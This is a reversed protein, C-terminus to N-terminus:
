RREVFGYWLICSTASIINTLGLVLWLLCNIMYLYNGASNFHWRNIISKVLSHNADKGRNRSARVADPLLCDGSRVVAWQCFCGRSKIYFEECSRDLLLLDFRLLSKAELCDPLRFDKVAGAIGIVNLGISM